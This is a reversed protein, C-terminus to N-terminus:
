KSIIKFDVPLLSIPRYSTCDAADKDKKHILSIVATRMTEPLTGNQVFDTFMPMFLPESQPWFAKYLEVPYGDLGPVKGSPLASIAQLGEESPFPSNLREKDEESISPLSM